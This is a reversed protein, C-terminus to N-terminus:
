KVISVMKSIKSLITDDNKKLDHIAKWQVLFNKICPYCKKNGAPLTHSTWEYYSIVVATVKLRILLKAAILITEQTYAGWGGAPAVHPHHKRNKTLQRWIKDETLEVLYGVIVIGEEHLLIRTCNALGMHKGVEFFSTIKNGTLVMKPNTLLYFNFYVITESVSKSKPYKRFLM